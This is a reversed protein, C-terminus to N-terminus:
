ELKRRIKPLHRRECYRDIAKGVAQESDLQEWEPHQKELAHRIQSHTTGAKKENYRWADRPDNTSQKESRLWTVTLGPRQV